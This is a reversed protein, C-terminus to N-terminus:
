DREGLLRFHNEGKRLNRDWDRALIWRRERSRRAIAAPATEDLEGRGQRKGGDEKMRERRGAVDRPLRLLADMKTADGHATDIRLWFGVAGGAVQRM